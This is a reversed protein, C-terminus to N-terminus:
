PVIARWFRVMKTLKVLKKIKWIDKENIEFQKQPSKSYSSSPLDWPQTGVLILKLLGNNQAM